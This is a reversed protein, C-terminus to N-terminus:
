GVTGLLCRSEKIAGCCGFFAIVAIVAGVSIIIISGTVYKVSSLEVYDGIKLQVYIGVGLLGVGGLQSFSYFKIL